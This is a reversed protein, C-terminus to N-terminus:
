VPNLELVHNGHFSSNKDTKYIMRKENRCCQKAGIRKNFLHSLFHKVEFLMSLFSSAIDQFVINSLFQEVFLKMFYLFPLLLGKM